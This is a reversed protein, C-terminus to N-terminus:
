AIMSEPCGKDMDSIVFPCTDNRFPLHRNIYSCPPSLMAIMAVPLLCDDVQRVAFRLADVQAAILRPCLDVVGIGAGIGRVPARRLSLQDYRRDDVGILRRNRKRIGRQGDRPLALFAAATFGRQRPWLRSRCYRGTFLLLSAHDGGSQDGINRIHRIGIRVVSQRDARGGVYGDRQDLRAFIRAACPDAALLYEFVSGPRRGGTRRLNCQRRVQLVHGHALPPISSSPAHSSGVVLSLAEIVPVVYTTLGACAIQTPPRLWGCGRRRRRTAVVLM